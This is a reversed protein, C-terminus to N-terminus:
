YKRRRSISARIAYGVVGGSVFLFVGAFVLGLEFMVPKTM